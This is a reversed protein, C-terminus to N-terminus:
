QDASEWVEGREVDCRHGTEEIHDIVAQDGEEYSDHTFDCEVCKACLHYLGKKIIM